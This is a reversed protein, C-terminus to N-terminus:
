SLAHTSLYEFVSSIGAGNLSVGDSAAYEELLWGDRCIVSATDAYWVATDTCVTRLWQNALYVKEPTINGDYAETVSSISCCIIRTSPSQSLVSGILAKYGTIFSEESIDPVGDKGILIVLIDPKSIMAANPASVTSGDGPFRVGAAFLDNMDVSGESGLWVKSPDAGYTAVATNRSDCLFTLSSIYDQGLDRTKRLENLVGAEASILDSSPTSASTSKENKPSGSSAGLEVVPLIREGPYPNVLCYLVGILVALLSILVLVAWIINKFKVIKDLM